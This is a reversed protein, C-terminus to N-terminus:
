SGWPRYVTRHVQHSAHNTLKLQSVVQKVDQVRSKDTVLLADPTDVVILDKVGVAAVVRCDSQIYCGEADITIAEGSIRNGNADPATLEGVANWSGIDNWDFTARVVAVDQYKEMVAYDISIDQLQAFHTASLHIKEPELKSTQAWCQAAAGHLEPACAELAKLFTQANFCFMGSNWYFRGSSVFEEAVALTPKEVFRRVHHSGPVAAAEGCEVYGYGTEPRTPPVGFTVLLGNRALAAADRVAAAFAAEDEILHDAPLVLLRADSGCVELAHFAAMALAPATNRGCPELLFHQRQPQAAQAYEDKTLFYYERNTVTVITDVGPLAAARDYTKRLLTRGDAMRICPKPYAERSVPWLRSGAGGSLIVPVLM